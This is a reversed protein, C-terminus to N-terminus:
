QKEDKDGKRGRQNSELFHITGGENKICNERLKLVRNVRGKSQRRRLYRSGNADNFSKLLLDAM